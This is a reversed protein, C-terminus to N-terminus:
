IPPLPNTLTAISRDDEASPIWIGQNQEEVWTRAPGEYMGALKLELVRAIYVRADRGREVVPSYVVFGWAEISLIRIRRYWYISHKGPRGFREVDDPTVPIPEPPM